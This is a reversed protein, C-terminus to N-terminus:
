RCPLPLNEANVANLVDTTSQGKSQLLGQDMAIMIQRQKAGYPYPIVTGPVTILQPGLLNFADDNLQQESLGQGSLGLQVILVSSASFNIVEPQQIVPSLPRHM